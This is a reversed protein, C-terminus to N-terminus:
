LLLGGMQEAIEADLFYQYIQKPSDSEIINRVAEENMFVEALTRMIDIHSDPDTAALAVMLRVPYGDESFQIPQKLVTVALQKKRVGMEPRGHILAINDNFVYYPGYKETVKIINEGYEETVYDQEVLPELSKVIAAKWDEVHDLIRVNEKKLMDLIM